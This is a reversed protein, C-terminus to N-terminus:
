GGSYNYIVDFTNNKSDVCIGGGTGSMRDGQMACRMGDGNPSSLIAMLSQNGGVTTGVGLTSAFGGTSTRAFGSVFSTYQEGTTRSYRGSYEVGAIKMTLTGQGDGTRQIVGQYVKGDSRSMIQMAAQLACGTLSSLISLVVIIAFTRM